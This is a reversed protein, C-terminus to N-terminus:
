GMGTDNATRTVLKQREQWKSALGMGHAKGDKFQMVAAESRAKFPRQAM